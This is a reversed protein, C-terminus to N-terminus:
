EGKEKELYNGYEKHGSVLVGGNETLKIKQCQYADLYTYVISNLLDKEGTTGMSRLQNGFAENLDLTIIGESVNTEIGLVDPGANIVGVKQLQQWILRADLNEIEVEVSTMEGSEEDPYYVKIVISSSSQVDDTNEQEQGGVEQSGEQQENQKEESENEEQKVQKKLEEEETAKKQGCATMCVICLLSLGLILFKKM